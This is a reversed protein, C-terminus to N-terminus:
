ERFRPDESWSVFAENSETERIEIGYKELLIQRITRIAEPRPISTKSEMSIAGHVGLAVWVKRHTLHAYLSLVEELQASESFQMQVATEEEGRSAPPQSTLAIAIAALASPVMRRRSIKM